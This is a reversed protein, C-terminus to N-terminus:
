CENLIGGNGRPTRRSSRPSLSDEDGRFNANPWGEESEDIDHIVGCRSIRITLCARPAIGVVFSVIVVSAGNSPLVSGGTGVSGGPGPIPLCIKLLPSSSNSFPTSIAAFFVLIGTHPTISITIPLGVHM